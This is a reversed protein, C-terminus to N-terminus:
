KEETGFPYELVEIVKQEQRRQEEEILKMFHKYAYTPLFRAMFIDGAVMGIRCYITHKFREDLNYAYFDFQFPKALKLYTDDFAITHGNTCFTEGPTSPWVQYSGDYVALHALACCGDPFEFEVKYVLGKTVELARHEPEWPKTDKLIELAISYIM